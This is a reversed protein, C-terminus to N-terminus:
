AVLELKAKKASAAKAILANAEDLTLDSCVVTKDSAKCVSYKQVPAEPAADAAPATEVAAEDAKAEVAPADGENGERASLVNSLLVDSVAGGETAAPTAAAEPKAKPKRGGKKDEPRGLGQLLADLAADTKAKEKTDIFAHNYHTAASALTIGFETMIHAMVTKRFVTNGARTNERTPLLENFKRNCEPRIGKDMISEKQANLANHQSL